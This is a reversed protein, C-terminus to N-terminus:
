ACRAEMWRRLNPLGEWGFAHESSGNEVLHDLREGAEALTPIHGVPVHWMVFHPKGFEGFWKGRSEYFRKHITNWVFHELHEASEWVSMNVLTDGGDDLRLDTADNGEGVLRWVFGPSREAIANVRDLNDMFGAMRPDELPFRAMGVNLQALHM